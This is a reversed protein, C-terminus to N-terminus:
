ALVQQLMYSLQEPPYPKLIFGSAGADKCQDELDMGSSMLVPVSRLDPHQRLQRLVELGSTDALNVDMLIVDPREAQAESIVHTGRPVVRVGFGDLELLMQLLSTITRDDDVIM